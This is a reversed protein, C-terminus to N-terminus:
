IIECYKLFEEPFEEKECSLTFTFQVGRTESLKALESFFCYMSFPNKLSNQVIKFTTDVFVDTIDRNGEILGYMFFRLEDWSSISYEATVVTKAKYDMYPAINCIKELFVINGKSTRVTQNVLDLIRKTKGSGKPGVILKIM